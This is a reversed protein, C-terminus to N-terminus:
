TREFFVGKIFRREASNIGIFAIFFFNLIAITVIQFISTIIANEGKVFPLILYISLVSVIIVLAIPALVRMSFRRMSFAIMQSLFVVRFLLTIMSFVLMIVFVGYPPMDAFKLMFYSIPLNLFILTGVVIQYWKIKGTAQAAVMLPGSICEILIYVLVLQVFVTTYEPIGKLWLQLVFDINFWIPLVIIYLLFFSLKSGQCILQFNKNYDKQAYTKVIQPNIALQFNNVFMQVASQVQLALSYAANVATGFFLNLVVNNGQSRALSAVNGFLNWGSYSLLEKFYGRDFEFIYKSEEFRRRCYVQYIFRILVAVLFTLVAYTILKDGGVFVLLFVAALKLVAEIMSVIAYIKMKERAQILADYPVQIINVLFTAVSFQYVVLAAYMRDQPFIMKNKVYWLGITEALILGLVALGIHITLTASFTKKLKEQDGMGIDFSLYRRTANAMAGRFFGLMAVIGGVLGYLGYDSVGLQELVVRSTYLTVGVILFMRIYLFATNKVITKSTSM